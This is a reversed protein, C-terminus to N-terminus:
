HGRLRRAYPSNPSHGPHLPWNDYPKVFGWSQRPLGIKIPNEEVYRITRWIDDPSDLFVKWGHGGWVPHAMDRSEAERLAIHSARQLNRTMEEALHKHKRIVLHVHDPMIACAYCTYKHSAIEASFANSIHQFDKETFTMFPHELIESARDYFERIEWSAPQVPKRGHHLEGLESIVDNRIRQSMSGRRDNPLWWGYATWILHYAIVIPRSM